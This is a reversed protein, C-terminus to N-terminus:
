RLPLAKQSNAHTRGSERAQDQNNHPQGTEPRNGSLLDSDCQGSCGPLTEKLQNILINQYNQYNYITRRGVGGTIFIGISLSFGDQQV